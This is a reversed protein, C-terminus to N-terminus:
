AEDLVERVKGLLADTTFPKQIFQTGAGLVGHLGLAEDTYGSMFLVKIEHRAIRVNRALEPGSLRPMAVDTLLLHIPVDPAAVRRLAEEPDASALVTYGAAELIEHIMERLPDADEVLLITENTASTSGAAAAPPPRTLDDESPSSSTRRPRPMWARAM